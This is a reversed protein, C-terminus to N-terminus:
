AEVQVGGRGVAGVVRGVCEGVVGGDGGGRLRAAM